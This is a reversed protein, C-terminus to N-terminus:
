DTSLSVYSSCEASNVNRSLEVEESDKATGKVLM